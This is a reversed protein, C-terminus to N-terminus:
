KGASVDGTLHTKSHCCFRRPTQIVRGFRGLKKGAAGSPDPGMGSDTKPSDGPDPNLDPAPNRSPLTDFWADGQLAARLSVKLSRHFRECMGNAEQLQLGTTAARLAQVEPDSAQDAAMQGYDVGLNVADVISRSLCDAVVNDKGAVHQIDTTFELRIGVAKASPRVM